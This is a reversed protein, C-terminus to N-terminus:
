SNASPPTARGFQEVLGLAVLIIAGPLSFVLLLVYILVLAPSRWKAAPLRTHLVALGQLLLPVALTLALSLPLLDDAADALLWGLGALVPLAAYWRPLRATSWRTAPALALNARRLLGQAIAANAALALALWLALAVAKLRVIQEVLADPAEMGMRTLGLAVAERLAAELGGDPGGLLL